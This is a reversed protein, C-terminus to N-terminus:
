GADKLMKGVDRPFFFIGDYDSLEKGEFWLGIEVHHDGSVLAACRPDHETKRIRLIIEIGKSPATLHAGNQHVISAESDPFVRSTRLTKM